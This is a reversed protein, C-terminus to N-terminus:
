LGFGRNNSIGSFRKEFYEDNIKEAGTREVQSFKNIDITQEEYNRFNQIKIKNLYMKGGIIDM